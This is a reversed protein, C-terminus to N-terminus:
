AMGKTKIGTITHHEDFTAVAFLPDDGFRILRMWTWIIFM